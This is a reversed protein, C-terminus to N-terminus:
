TLISASLLASDALFDVDELKININIQIYINLIFCEM